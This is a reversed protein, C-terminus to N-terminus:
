PLTKCIAPANGELTLLACFTADGVKWTGDEKVAQGNQNKLAPSGALSITYIVSAGTPSTATVKSVTATTSTALSSGAQATITTSFATGNQLLAIKQAAPTKGSFFEVFARSIAATDAAGGGSSTSTTPAPTPAGAPASSHHPTSPPTSGPSGGGCGALVAMAVLGAAFSSAGTAARRGFSRHATISQRM